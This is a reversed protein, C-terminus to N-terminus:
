SQWFVGGEVVENLTTSMLVCHMCFQFHKHTDDKRATFKHIAVHIYLVKIDRLQSIWSLGPGVFLNSMLNEIHWQFKFPM